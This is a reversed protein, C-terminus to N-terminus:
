NRRVDNSPHPQVSGRGYPLADQAGRHNGITRERVTAARFVRLNIRSVASTGNVPSRRAAHRDDVHGM